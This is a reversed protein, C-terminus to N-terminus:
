SFLIGFGGFVEVGLEIAVATAVIPLVMGAASGALYDRFRVDSMALLYNLPPSTVMVVRMAAISRVPRHNLGDLARQLWRNKIAGLPRGGVLRVIAFSTSVALLSALSALISGEIPGYVLVASVIFVMGPLQLLNGAAFAGIYLLVGWAGAAVIWLKVSEPTMGDTWGMLHGILGLGVVLVLMAGIRWLSARRPADEGIMEDNADM